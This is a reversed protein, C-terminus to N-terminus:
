LLAHAPSAQASASFSQWISQLGAPRVFNFCCANAINAIREAFAQARLM